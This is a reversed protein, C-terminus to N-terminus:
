FAITKLIKEKLNAIEDTPIYKELIDVIEQSTLSLRKSELKLLEFLFLVDGDIRLVEMDTKAKLTASRKEGLIWAIEGVINGEEVEAM